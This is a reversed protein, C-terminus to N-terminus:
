RNSSWDLNANIGAKTITQGAGGVETIVCQLVATASGDSLKAFAHSVSCAAGTSGSLTCSSPNSTFSWAYNYSGSGGTASVFPNCSVTGGSSTSIASANGDTSTVVLTGTGGSATKGYLNSLSNGPGAVGALALVDSDGLSIPYARGPNTTRLENMVNTLSIVGSTPTTM